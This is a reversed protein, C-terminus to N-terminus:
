KKENCGIGGMSDEKNKGDNDNGDSDIESDSAVYHAAVAVGTFVVSHDKKTALYSARLSHMQELSSRKLLVLMNM